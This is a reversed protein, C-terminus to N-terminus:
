RGEDEKQNDRERLTKFYSRVVDRYNWPVTETQLLDQEAFESPSEITQFGLRSAEAKIVLEEEEEAEEEIGRAGEFRVSM